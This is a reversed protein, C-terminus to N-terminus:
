SYSNLAKIVLPCRINDSSGWFIKMTNKCYTDSIGGKLWQPGNQWLSGPGISSLSTESRTGMYAVNEKSAAHRLPRVNAYNQMTEMSYHIDSIRSHVYPNFSTEVMDLANIACTSDGSIHSNGWTGPFIIVLKAM